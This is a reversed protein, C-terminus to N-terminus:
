NYAEKRHRVIMVNIYSEADNIEYVVRYDGVRIRHM